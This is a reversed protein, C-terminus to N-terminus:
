VIKPTPLKDQEVDADADAAIQPAWQTIVDTGNAKSNRVAQMTSGEGARLAGTNHTIQEHKQKMKIQANGKRTSKEPIRQM